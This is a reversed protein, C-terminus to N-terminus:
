LRYIRELVLTQLDDPIEGARKKFRIRRDNEEEIQKERIKKRKERNQILLEEREIKQKRIRDVAEVTVNGEKAIQKNAEEETLGSNAKERIAQKIKTAGYIGYYKRTAIVISKNAYGFEKMLTEADDPIEAARQKFRNIKEKKTVKDM